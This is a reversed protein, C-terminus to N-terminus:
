LVFDLYIGMSGVIGCCVVFYVGCGSAGIVGQPGLM